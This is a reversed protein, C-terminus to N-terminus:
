AIVPARNGAYVEFNTFKQLNKCKEVEWVGSVGATFKFKFCSEAPVYVWHAADAKKLGCGGVHGRGILRREIEVRECLGFGVAVLVM